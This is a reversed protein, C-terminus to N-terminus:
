CQNLLLITCPVNTDYTAGNIIGDNGNSTQDYATNGSGEEFNWYGVLGVENGQPSCNMYNQIEQQSLAINWISVQDIQGDYYQLLSIGRGIEKSANNNIFTYPYTNIIQPIGNIYIQHNDGVGDRTYAIHVWGSNTNIVNSGTIAVM